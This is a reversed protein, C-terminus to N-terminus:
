RRRRPRRTLDPRRPPTPCAGQCRCELFGIALVAGQAAELTAFTRIRGNKTLPEGNRRARFRRVLKSPTRGKGRLTTCRRKYVMVSYVSWTSQCAACGLAACTHGAETMVLVWSSPSTKAWDHLVLAIMSEVSM